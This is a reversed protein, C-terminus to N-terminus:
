GVTQCATQAGNADALTLRWHGADLASFIVGSADKAGAAIQGQALPAGSCSGARVAWTTASAAPSALTVDVRTALIPEMLALGLSYGNSGEAPTFLNFFQKQGSLPNGCALLPANVDNAHQRVVVFLNVSTTIDADVGSKPDPAVALGNPIPASTVETLAALRKGGCTGYRLEVPTQAGKYPILKGKYYAAIHAAYTSTFTASGLSQGGAAGVLAVTAGKGLPPANGHTGCAALLSALLIPAILAALRTARWGRRLRLGRM